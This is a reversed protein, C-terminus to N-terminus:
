ITLVNSLAIHSQSDESKGKVLESGKLSMKQPERNSVTLSL